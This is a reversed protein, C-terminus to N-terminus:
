RKGEPMWKVFHIDLMNFYKSQKKGRRVPLEPFLYTNLRHHRSLPGIFGPEKGVSFRIWPIVTFPLSYDRKVKKNVALSGNGSVVRYFCSYNTIEHIKRKKSGM